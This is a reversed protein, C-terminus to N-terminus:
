DGRGKNLLRTGGKRKLSFFIGIFSPAFGVKPEGQPSLSPYGHFHSEGELRGNIFPRGINPNKHVATVEFNEGKSEGRHILLSL